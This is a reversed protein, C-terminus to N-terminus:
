TAARRRLVARSRRVYRMDGTIYLVSPQPDGSTAVTTQTTAALGFLPEAIGNRSPSLLGDDGLMGDDGTGGSLWDAGANGYLIDDQGDGFLTDAGTQGYIVDNGAEGHLFDAAGRNGTGLITSYQAPSAPNTAIYTEGLPTYDLLLIARPVVRESSGAYNDYSFTLFQGGAGVIRYINGNDGLIADADHAHGNM